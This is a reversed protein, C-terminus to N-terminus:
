RSLFPRLAASWNEAMLRYGDRVPHVGPLLDPRDLFLGHNDVLPLREEEALARVAPNIESEVRKSSEPTFPRPTTEPVPLITALLIHSPTGTRDSFGRFIAVIRKMNSKFVDTPTHDVDTRVDNTGLQLLIFDPREAGLREKNKELFSLYEGSTNGSRGYNLVKARFGAKNLLQQLFHPYAEATLSDGACLVIVGRPASTCVSVFFPLLLLISYRGVRIQVEGM